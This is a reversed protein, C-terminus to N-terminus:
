RRPIRKLMGPLYLDTMLRVIRHGGSQDFAPVRRMRLIKAFVGAHESNDDVHNMAQAVLSGRELDANLIKDVYVSM